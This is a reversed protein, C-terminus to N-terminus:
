EGGKLLKMLGSFDRKNITHTAGNREAEERVGEVEAKATYLIRVEALERIEQLVRYGEGGEDTYDLDTVIKDYRTQKAKAVVGEPTTATDVEIGPRRLARSFSALFETNDDGILIKKTEM